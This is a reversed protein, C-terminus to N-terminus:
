PIASPLAHQLVRRRGTTLDQLCYTMPRTIDCCTHVRLWELMWSSGRISMVAAFVCAALLGIVVVIVENCIFLGSGTGYTGAQCLSCNLDTTAGASLIGLTLDQLCYTMPRTIDCCTHVRLWELMWSSGRISMVAAFVHAALLGIVGVM